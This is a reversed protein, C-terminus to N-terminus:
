INTASLRKAGLGMSEVIPRLISSNTTVAVLERLSAPGSASSFPVDGDVGPSGTEEFNAM